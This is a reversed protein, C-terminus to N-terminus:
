GNFSMVVFSIWCFRRSTKKKKKYTIIIKNFFNFMMFTTHPYLFSLTFGKLAKRLGWELKAINIWNYCLFYLM